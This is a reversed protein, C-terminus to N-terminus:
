QIQLCQYSESKLENLVKFIQTAHRRIFEPPLANGIMQAAPFKGRALSFIYHPPFTQLLAAERLTITRNKTPHLFRGKSPNVCGGTITPSVDNWSMRGYVDKFGNCRQHCKLQRKKGLDLRSGGNHPIESILQKIKDSRNEPLNHLEDKKARRGLKAFAERVTQKRRAPSGFPIKGGRGAVLILRRRRQPVGYHAADLINYSVDYGLRQLESRLKKFRRNKALKPVNELMVAKPRLVRIFRLFQFVLDNQEDQGIRGNLTTMTSFGQCPPCGALLDLQGPRIKLRHMVEAASVKSIDKEWIVVHKYNAKYTEVALPDIEVAGIVHFGAQKLGLTLGGCGSFLDIAKPKRM